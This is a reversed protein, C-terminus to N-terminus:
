AMREIRGFFPLTAGADDVERRQVVTGRDPVFTAMTTRPDLLVVDPV